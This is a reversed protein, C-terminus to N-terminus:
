KSEEQSSKVRASTRMSEIRALARQEEETALRLQADCDTTRCAGVIRERVLKAQVILTAKQQDFFKDRSQPNDFEAPTLRISVSPDYQATAGSAVDVIVGILGGLLINGFTM